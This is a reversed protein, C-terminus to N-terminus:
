GRPHKKHLKKLRTNTVHTYIQTSSIDAHGLMVQVIRLDAGREILHTAFSHRLIHPRIKNREIGCRFACNKLIVWFNQRTMHTARATLFLYKGNKGKLFAGRAEEIYRMIWRMASQGIPVVREKGGKGLATIYGSQLSVDNLKLSVLESVRLGTAYLTELMAKDRIGLVTDTDPSSLLEDVETISLYQPLKNHFRPLDINACPSANIRGRKLLFKYFGRITILSRTYSRVSLGDEKLSKLYATIDAGNIAEAQASNKKLHAIFRLLDREYSVRTNRSLGREVTIYDLFEQALGDDDLTKIM